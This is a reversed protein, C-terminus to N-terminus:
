VETTGLTFEADVVQQITDFGQNSLQTRTVSLAGEPIPFVKYVGDPRGIIVRDYLCGAERNGTLGPNIIALTTTNFPISVAVARGLYDTARYTWPSVWVGRTM